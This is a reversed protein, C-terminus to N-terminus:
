KGDTLNKNARIILSIIFIIRSFYIFSNPFVALNLFADTDKVGAPLLNPCYVIAAAIGIACLASSLIRSALYHRLLPPEKATACTSYIQMYVSLGSWGVAASCLVAALTRSTLSACAAAGSTLEFFSFLIAKLTSIENIAEIASLCGVFCTFFTVTACVTIVAGAASSVSDIFVKSIPQIKDPEKLECSCTSATRNRKFIIGLTLGSIINLTYILIGLKVNGLLNKGVAFIVFPASPYNSIALLRSCEDKSLENRKYLAVATKAGIPFGCLIGLALAGAGSGSINFLCKMPKEFVRGLYYGIDARVLIESIVMYPFLTPVLVESCLLLGRKMESVSTDADYIFLLLMFLSLVFIAIRHPTIKKFLSM